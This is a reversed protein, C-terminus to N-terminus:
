VYRCVCVFLCVCLSPRLLLPHRIIIIFHTHVCVCTCVCLDCLVNVVACVCMQVCVRLCGCVRVCLCVCVCTCAYVRVFASVSRTFVCKCGVQLAAHLAHSLPPGQVPDEHSHVAATEKQSPQGGTRARTHAHTHVRKHTHTHTHAHVRANTNCSFTPLLMDCVFGSRCSKSLHHAYALIYRACVEIM